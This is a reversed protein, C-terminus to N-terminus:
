WQDYDESDESDDSVQSLSDIIEDSDHVLRKTPKLYKSKRKRVLGKEVRHKHYHQYIRNWLNNEEMGSITNPIGWTKGCVECEIKESM